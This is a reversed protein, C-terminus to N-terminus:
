GRSRLSFPSIGSLLPDLWDDGTGGFGAAGGGVGMAEAAALDPRRERAARALAGAGALRGMDEEAWSSAQEYV